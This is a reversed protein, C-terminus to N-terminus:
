KWPLGQRPEHPSHRAFEAMLERAHDTAAASAVIKIEILQDGGKIGKGRLRLRTGSSTGPPIKVALRTGDLTPVEIQAGLVAEAVSIPVELILHNGERRFWPHPAIHLQLYLDGGGPAQGPLRLKQGEEAGAPIAVSLERGEVGISVKGGLAATDFPITITHPEPPPRAGGRRGRTRTRSPAAGMDFDMGGFLQNLFDQAQEPNFGSFNGPGGGWQFQFGGPGGPFGGDPGVFGFRDYQARKQKNSLVDYADQIEKFKREAEKDGPNRDPHHQRALSRYAKRIDDDSADRQVGLVEYYDRPM